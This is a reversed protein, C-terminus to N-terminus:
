ASARAAVTGHSAPGDFAITCATSSARISLVYVIHSTASCFMIGGVARAVEATHLGVLRLLLAEV